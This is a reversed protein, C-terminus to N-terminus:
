LSGISIIKPTTITAHGEPVMISIPAPMGQTGNTKGIWIKYVRGTIASEGFGSTVKNKPYNIRTIEIPNAYFKINEFDKKLSFEITSSRLTIHAISENVLGGGAIKTFATSADTLNTAQSLLTVYDQLVMQVSTPLEDIKIDSEPSQAMMSPTIGISLIFIIQKM